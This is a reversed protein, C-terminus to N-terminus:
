VVSKRDGDIFNDIGTSFGGLLAGLQTHHTVQGTFHGIWLTGDDPDYGIGGNFQGTDFTALVTGTLTRKYVLNNTLGGTTWINTGDFTVGVFSDTTSFMLTHAANVTSLKYVNGEYTGALIFGGGFNGMDEIWQGDITATMTGLSGDSPSRKEIVNNGFSPNAIYVVGGPDVAAGTAAGIAGWTQIFTGNKQYERELRTTDHGILLTAASVSGSVCTDDTCPDDDNCDAPVCGGVWHKQATATQLSGAADTFSALITDDGAGNADFYTFSVNGNVDSKCDVPVCTGSAGGNQGTVTFTVLKGAVPTGDLEHVNATVTHSTGVPNTADLPSVSIGQSTIDCRGSILIYAEGCANLGTNPDVGCTPHSPTDTAVALACWDSRFTPFSEHVSCSWGQLSATSLGPFFPPSSAILSVSGGCPPSQNITWAGSGASLADLVPVTIGYCSADFYMGTTNPKSAAYAIGERIITGRAGPSTYDGGDHYVPDTGVLVRNGAATRGGALGMVVSGYVSASSIVGAPLSSCTPDGVILLDYFGFQAATMGNWVADSVVTVNANLPPAAAILAEQSGLGGSVTDGNILVELPAAMAVGAVVLVGVVAFLRM